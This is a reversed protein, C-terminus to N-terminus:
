RISIYLMGVYFEPLLRALCVTVDLCGGSLPRVASGRSVLDDRVPSHDHGATPLYVLSLAGCRTYDVRRSSQRSVPEPSNSFRGVM